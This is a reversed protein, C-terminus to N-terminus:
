RFMAASGKRLEADGVHHCRLIAKQGLLELDLMQVSYHAERHAAHLSEFPGNAIRGEQVSCHGDCARRTKAREIVQQPRCV